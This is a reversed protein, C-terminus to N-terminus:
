MNRTWIAGDFHGTTEQALLLGRAPVSVKVGELVMHQSARPFRAKLCLVGGVERMPRERDNELVMSGLFLRGGCYAEPQQGAQLQCQSNM